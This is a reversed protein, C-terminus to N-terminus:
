KQYKMDRFYIEMEKSNSQKFLMQRETFLEFMSTHFRKVKDLPLLKHVSKAKASRATCRACVVPARTNKQM